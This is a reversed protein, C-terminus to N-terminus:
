ANVEMKKEATLMGAQRTGIAADKISLAQIEGLVPFIAQIIADITMERRVESPGSVCPWIIIIRNVGEKLNKNVM